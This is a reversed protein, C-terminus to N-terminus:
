KQVLNITDVFARANTMNKFEYQGTIANISIKNFLLFSTYECYQIKSVSSSLKRKKILGERGTIFGDKLELTSTERDVWCLGAIILGAIIMAIASDDGLNTLGGIVLMICFFGPILYRVFSHKIKM